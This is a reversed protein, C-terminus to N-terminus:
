DTPVNALGHGAVIKGLLRELQRREGVSLAGFFEADNKDALAALRPVLRRGAPTLTLIQGRGDEPDARREVLKKALLRDALKSIAGKTMRMRDALQSPALREFDFLVRLFVWEAVTVGEGEVKRAFGHSVSNSVMRLWYGLHTQLDSPPKDAAM